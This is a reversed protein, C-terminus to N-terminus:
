PKILFLQLYQLDIVEYEDIGAEKFLSKLTEPKIRHDLPPGQESKKYPWELIAIRQKTVRKVEKLAMLQDDAEHFVLGLFTLDFAKDNFPIKEVPAKKLIANPLYKAAAELMDDSVDICSVDLGLKSFAEAFIGTGTGVDLVSGSSIKNVSLSVVKDIELLAIREASRLREIGGNFRREHM